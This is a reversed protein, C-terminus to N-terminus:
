KRDSESVVYATLESFDVDDLSKIDRGASGLIEKWDDLFNKSFVKDKRIDDKSQKKKERIGRDNVELDKAYFMAAEEASVGFRNNVSKADLDRYKGKVKIRVTKSKPLPVYEPPLKPGNQKLVKWKKSTQKKTILDWWRKSTKVNQQNM